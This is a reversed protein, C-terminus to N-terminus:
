DKREDKGGIRFREIDDINLRIARGIRYYPLRGAKIERYLLRIDIDLQKAMDRVSLLKM